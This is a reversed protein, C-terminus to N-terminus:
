QVSHSQNEEEEETENLQLFCKSVFHGQCCPCTIDSIGFGLNSKVELATQLSYHGRLSAFPGM